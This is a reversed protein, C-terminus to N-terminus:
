LRVFVSPPDTPEDASVTGEFHAEGLARAAMSALVYCAKKSAEVEVPRITGEVKHCLVEKTSAGSVSFSPIYPGMEGELIGDQRAPPVIVVASGM